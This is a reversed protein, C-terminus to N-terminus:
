DMNEQSYYENTENITSAVKSQAEPSNIMEVYRSVSLIVGIYFCNILLSSGGRSILPLPQGTVFLGTAVVMNVLAQLTIMTALGIVLYAPFYRQCKKAIRGARIVLAVYLFLVFLAGIIGTEEVIISYIFDSEAHPLFDREVSNGPGRGIVNSNAIAIQAHAEQLNDQINYTSDDEENVGVMAEVRHKWTIARHMKPIKALTSEDLLMIMTFLLAVFAVVTLATKFLLDFPVRGVVMMLFVTIFLLAATSFNEFFILSCVIASFVMIIKFALSHGGKIAGSKIKTRGHADTVKVEAQTKALVVAVFMVLAAKGLESPQVSMGCIEIWRNAGNVTSGFFAAYVLLVLSVPMVVIPFLMFYKCPILHVFYVVLLGVFLFIAQNVMPDWHNGATYTLNSSASYVEVLSFLSLFLYIMWIGKDGTFINGKFIDSLVKAM